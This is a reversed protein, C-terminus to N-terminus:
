RSTLGFDRLVGEVARRIQGPRPPCPVAVREMWGPVEVEIEFHLGEDLITYAIVQDDAAASAGSAAERIELEFQRAITPDSIENRAIEFEAM